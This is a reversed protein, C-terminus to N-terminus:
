AGVRRNIERHLEFYALLPASRRDYAALPKRHVGMQEVVSSYPIAADLFPYPASAADACITRHLAKRKDVMNFFPLVRPAAGGWDELCTHLQDLTNLSLTTPITPVLLVDAAAFVNESVLSISPACDLYIEDYEELLPALLKRIRRRSKRKRDLFLDLHRYRFDAPLLDLGPYDTGRVHATAGSRRFLRKLGGKVKPKVRFYFTAAGQPDLDWVLTRAGSLASIHALNVAAATKGVGGKINYTAFVTM